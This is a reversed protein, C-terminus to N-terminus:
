LEYRNRVGMKRFINGTHFKYTRYSMGLKEAIQKGVLSPETKMCQYVRFETDSLCHMNPRVNYFERCLADLDQQQKTLRASIDALMELLKARDSIVVNLRDVEQEVRKIHDMLQSPFIGCRKRTEPNRFRTYWNTQLAAHSIDKKFNRVIPIPNTSM